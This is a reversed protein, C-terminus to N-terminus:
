SLEVFCDNENNVAAIAVLFHDFYSALLLLFIALRLWSQGIALTIKKPCYDM